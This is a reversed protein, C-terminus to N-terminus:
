QHINLDIESEYVKVPKGGFQSSQNFSISFRGATNSAFLDGKPIVSGRIYRQEKLDDFEHGSYNIEISADGFQSKTWVAKADRLTGPDEKYVNQDFELPQIGGVVISGFTYAPSIGFKKNVKIHNFSLILYSNEPIDRKKGDYGTWMLDIPVLSRNPDNPDSMDIVVLKETENIFNGEDSSFYMKSVDFASGYFGKSFYRPLMTIINTKHWGIEASSLAYKDVPLTAGSNVTLIREIITVSQARNTQNNLALEGANLGQILGKKVANYVMLNDAMIAGPVQLDKNTARLAIRSMELRSIPTNWDGITFDNWRHIGANVAANVFPSYWNDGAGPQSVDLKMATVAMKVFEARTVDLEPRFTGDQYGDVYGKSVATEISNEAWHSKIDEFKVNSMNAATMNSANNTIQTVDAAAQCSTTFMTVAAITIMLISGKKM